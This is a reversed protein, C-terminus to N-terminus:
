GIMARVQAVIEDITQSPAVVRRAVEPMPSGSMHTLIIAAIEEPTKAMAAGGETDLQQYIGAFNSTHPGHIITSGYTAPEYPTHGGKDVM